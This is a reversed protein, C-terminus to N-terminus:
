CCSRSISWLIKSMVPLPRIYYSQDSVKKETFTLDNANEAYLVSDSGESVYVKTNGAVYYNTDGIISLYHGNYGVANYTNTGISTTGGKETISSGENFAPYDLFSITGKLKLGSGMKVSLQSEGSIERWKGTHNVGSDISDDTPIIKFYFDKYTNGDNGCVRVVYYYTTGKTFGKPLEFM